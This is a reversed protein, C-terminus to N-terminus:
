IGFDIETSVGDETVTAKNDCEGNGYDIEYVFSETQGNADLGSYNDKEIGSIPMFVEIDCSFDYVVPKTIEYRYEFNEGSYVGNGETITLSDQDEVETYTSQSKIEQGDSFRYSLNEVFFFSNENTSDSSEYVVTGNITVTEKQTSTSVCDGNTDVDDCYSYTISFDVFEEEVKELLVTGNEESFTSIIKGTLLVGDEECGTGYDVTVIVSNNAGTTETITACTNNSTSSNNNFNRGLKNKKAITKKATGKSSFNKSIVKRVLSTGEKVKLFKKSIKPTEQKINENENCSIFAITFVLLLAYIKSKM